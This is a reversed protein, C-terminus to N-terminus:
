DVEKINHHKENEEQVRELFSAAPAPDNFWQTIFPDRGMDQIQVRYRISGDAMAVEELTGKRKSYWTLEQIVERNVEENHM